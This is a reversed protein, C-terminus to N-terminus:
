HKKLKETYGQTTSKALDPSISWRPLGKPHDIEGSRAFHVMKSAGQHDMACTNRTKQINKHINHSTKFVRTTTNEYTKLTITAM